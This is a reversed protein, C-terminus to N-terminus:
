AKGNEPYYSITGTTPPIFWESGRKTRKKHVEPVDKGIAALAKGIQNTSYNSVHYEMRDKLGAVTIWFWNKESAEFDFRNRLEEEGPIPETNELNRRDLLNKEDDTLRFCEQDQTFTRYCQAWFQRLNEEQVFNEMSIKNKVPIIWWRRSGSDATLFTSKNTTGCFSTTRAKSVQEPRYPKRIEDKTKTIFSKNDSKNAKFTRDVEGIEAIWASLMQILIDKNNTKLERELSSFWLPNFALQQFFRTKGIGEPGQLILVGEAQLPAELSNFPMATTQYFWKRILSQQLSDTIDLIEFM